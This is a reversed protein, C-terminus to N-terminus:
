KGALKTIIAFEEETVPQVSLRNGKRLLAMGELGSVTKLYTLPVPQAFQELFKVDVMFWRPSEPTSKNDFHSNEPDWSTFDPYAERVVEALGVVAANKGSHYFLVKDGTKMEDRMLNRAQYNRVGDWPTTQDPANILDELSFCDPESKMLWYKM